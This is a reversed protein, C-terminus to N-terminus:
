NNGTDHNNEKGKKKALEKIAKIIAYCFIIAISTLAIVILLCLVAFIIAVADWILGTM